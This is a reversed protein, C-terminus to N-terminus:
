DKSKDNKALRRTVEDLHSQVKVQLDAIRKVLEADTLKQLADDSSEDPSEQNM